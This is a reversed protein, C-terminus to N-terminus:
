KGYRAFNVLSYVPWNTEPRITSDFMGLILPTKQLRVLNLHYLRLDPDLYVANAATQTDRNRLSLEYWMQAYDMKGLVLVYSLLAGTLGFKLWRFQWSEETQKHPLDAVLYAAYLAVLFAFNQSIFGDVLNQAGIGILAALVANQRRSRKRFLVGMFNLATLGSGALGAIGLEAATNLLLNHAGMFNDQGSTGYLRYAQGFLGPGVGMIPRDYFMNLASRWLDLRFVDGAIHGNRNSVALILVFVGSIVAASKVLTRRSVRYTLVMYAVWAAGVSLFAGRSENVLLVFLLGYPLLMLLWRRDLKAWVWSPVILAAVYAGTLNVTFFAGAARKEPATFFEVLVVALIVGAALFHANFLTEAHGRRILSVLVFFLLINTLWHWLYELSMRPDISTISSLLLSPIFLLLPTTLPTSPLRHRWLFHVLIATLALHHFVRVPLALHYPAFSGGIFAIYLVFATLKWRM